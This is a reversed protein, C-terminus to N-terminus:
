KITLIDLRQFLRRRQGARAFATIADLHEQREGTPGPASMSALKVHPLSAYRNQQPRTGEQPEASSQM